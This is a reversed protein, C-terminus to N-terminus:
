KTIDEWPGRILNGDDDKRWHHQHPVVPHKKANGHNDCDIDLYPDGNVDYNKRVITVSNPKGKTPVCGHNSVDIENVENVVGTRDSQASNCASNFLELGEKSM